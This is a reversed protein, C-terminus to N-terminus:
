PTLIVTRVEDRDDFRREWSADPWHWTAVSEAADTGPEYIVTYLTGFGADFEDSRLPPSLLSEILDGELGLLLDQREQSLFRRAHEPREVTELRHNTSATLDSVIAPEGPAVFVTAHGGERDALAVNYSQAIPIRQLASVAQDVRTCTELLYRIVLPIGFGDGSGTRGGFTLSVVLGDENMGDLLGWLLDSTGIVRRQGSWNTSAIVGEFLLPDYDYNRAIKPREGPVIIQSCGVAFKPLGWMSLMLPALPDDTLKSVRDWHPVLEPMHEELAARCETLTPMASGLTAYWGRYASWTADYLARWRPGPRDEQYAHVTMSRETTPSFFQAEFSEPTVWYRSWSMGHDRWSTWPADLDPMEIPETFTTM